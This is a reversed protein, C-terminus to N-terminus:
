FQELLETGLSECTRNSGNLESEIAEEYLEKWMDDGNYEKEKKKLPYVSKWNNIISQNLIEIKESDTRGLSDVKNILMNLAKNTMPAKILKRMKIFELYTDHLELSVISSLIDDYSEKKSDKKKENKDNKINKDNKNTTVQKNSTQQNSTIQKNDQTNNIQEDTQQGDQYMNYNTVIFLTNKTRSLKTIDNTSILKNLSTRVQQVTLGTEASLSQYSSVCSGRKVLEGRWKKDEHNVKLLLHIWLKFTNLDDYWEWDVIKRHLKIYGQKSM